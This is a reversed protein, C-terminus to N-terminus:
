EMHGTECCHWCEINDQSCKKGASQGLTPPIALLSRRLNKHRKRAVTLSITVGRRATNASFNREVAMLTSSHGLPTIASTMIEHTLENWEYEYLEDITEQLTLTEKNLQKRLV